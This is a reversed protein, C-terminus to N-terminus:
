NKANKNEKLNKYILEIHELFLEYDHNSKMKNCTWCAVVCNDNTHPKSCDLADIGNYTLESNRAKLTRYPFKGCYFCPKKILKYFEEFEISFNLNYKRLENAQYGLYVQYALQKEGVFEKARLCGCSRTNGHIVRVNDIEIQSGCDCKFLWIVRKNNGTTSKGTDSIATLMNYKNGTLDNHKRLKKPKDICGCSINFGKVVNIIAYDCEKGCICKFRWVRNIPKGKANFTAFKKTFFLATLYNFTKNTYDIARKNARKEIACKGCTQNNVIAQNRAHRTNHNIEDSCSPCIRKYFTM